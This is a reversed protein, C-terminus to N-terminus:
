ERTRMSDGVNRMTAQLSFREKSNSPDITIPATLNAGSLLNSKEFQAVLKSAESSYGTMSVTHQGNATSPSVRIETLWTHAPLLSSIEDWVAVFRPIEFRQARLQSLITEHQNLQDMKLRVNQAKAKTRAIKDELHSFQSNQHSYRVCLSSLTLCTASAVLAYFTFAFIRASQRKATRLPITPTEHDSSVPAAEIFSIYSLDINAKQSAEEMFTHSIVWQSVSIVDKNRSPKGLGILISSQQFPTKSFLDRTAIEGLHSETQAPLLVRRHFVKDPSLRLGIPTEGPDIGHSSLLNEVTAFSFNESSYESEALISGASDRLIIATSSNRTEIVLIKQSSGTLWQSVSAPVLTHFEKLWWTGLQSMVGFLPTSSTLQADSM